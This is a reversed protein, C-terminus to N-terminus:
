CVDEPIPFVTVLRNFHNEKGCFVFVYDKYVVVHRNGNKTKRHIFESLSPNTNKLKNCTQGKYRAAQAIQIYDHRSANPMREKIRDCAHESIIIRKRVVGTM